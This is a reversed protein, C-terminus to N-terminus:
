FNSKHEKYTKSFTHTGNANRVFYLYDVDAPEICAKIADLSLSGVPYPPIGKHKYTNYLSLDNRIREPTVKVHSFGGYNLSGDMQLPMGIRLRNNIVAAILPMEEKNAAEKQVISGMRVYYFWQAKDYTGLLTIAQREHWTYSIKALLRMLADEDLGLPFKYTEAIIVGDPLDFYKEYAAQLKATDLGFKLAVDKLFFHLTEGPILTIERTASKASSLHKLFEKRSLNQSDIAIVGSQPQWFLRMLWEDVIGFQGEKVGQLSNLHTIISKISGKPLNLIQPMQIPVHLYIMFAFSVVVVLGGLFFCLLRWLSKTNQPTMM